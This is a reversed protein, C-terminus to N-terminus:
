AHYHGSRDILEFKSISDRSYKRHSDTFDSEVVAAAALKQDTKEHSAIVIMDNTIQLSLSDVPIKECSENLSTCTRRCNWYVVYM